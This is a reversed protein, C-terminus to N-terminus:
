QFRRVLVFVIDVSTKSYEASQVYGLAWIEAQIKKLNLRRILKELLFVKRDFNFEAQGTGPVLKGASGEREM